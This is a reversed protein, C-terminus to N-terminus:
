NKSSKIFMEPISELLYGKSRDFKVLNNDRAWRMKERGYWGTVEQVVGVGVWTEKKAPLVQRLMTKVEKLERRINELESM